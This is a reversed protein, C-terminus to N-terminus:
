TLGPQIKRHQANLPETSSVPSIFPSWVDKVMERTESYHRPLVDYINLLFALCVIFRKVKPGSHIYNVLQIRLFCMGDAM